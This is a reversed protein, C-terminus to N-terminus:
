SIEGGNLYLKKLCFLEHLIVTKKIFSSNKDIYMNLLYKM